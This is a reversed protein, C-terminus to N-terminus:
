FFLEFAYGYINCAIFAFSLIGISQKLNGKLIFMPFKTWHIKLIWIECFKEYHTVGRIIKISFAM